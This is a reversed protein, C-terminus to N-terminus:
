QQIVFDSTWYHVHGASDQVTGSVVGMASTVSPTLSATIPVNVSAGSAIAGLSYPLPPSTFILEGTGKLTIFTVAGLNLNSGDSGGLNRLQLNATVTDSGFIVNTGNAVINPPGCTGTKAVTTSAEASTKAPEVNGVLDTAISYFGYTHGRTGNYINASATTNTLGPQFPGRNDSVYISFTGLGSGVDSGSVNVLFNPCSEKAPLSSVKSTPPTNDITNIWAATRLPMQGDFVVKAQQTIRTGTSLGYIPTISFSANAGAGPPLFGM